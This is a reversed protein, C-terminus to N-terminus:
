YLRIQRKRQVEESQRKKEVTYDVAYFIIMAIFLSMAFDYLFDLGVTKCDSANWGQFSMRLLVCVIAIVFTGVTFLVWLYINKNDKFM